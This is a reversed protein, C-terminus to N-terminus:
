TKFEVLTTQNYNSQLSIMEEGQISVQTKSGFFFFFDCLATDPTYLTLVATM